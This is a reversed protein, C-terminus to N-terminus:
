NRIMRMYDKLNEHVIDAYFNVFKEENGTLSHLNSIYEGRRILPIIIMPYGQEILMLNSILRATRGNGDVFPHIKVFQYHFHGALLVPHLTNKSAEYWQILQRM